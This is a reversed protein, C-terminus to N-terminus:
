PRSSTNWQRNRFLFEKLQRESAEKELGRRVQALGLLQECRGAVESLRDSTFRGWHERLSGSLQKCVGEIRDRNMACITRMQALFETRYRVYGLDARVLVLRREYNSFGTGPAAIKETWPM